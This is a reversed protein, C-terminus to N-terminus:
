LYWMWKIIKVVAYMTVLIVVLTIVVNFIAEAISVCWEPVFNM